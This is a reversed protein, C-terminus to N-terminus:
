HDLKIWQDQAKEVNGPHLAPEGRISQRRISCVERGQLLPQM